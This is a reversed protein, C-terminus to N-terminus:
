KKLKLLVNLIKSNSKEINFYPTQEAGFYQNRKAVGEIMSGEFDYNKTKNKLFQIVKWIMFISTDNSGNIIKRATILNYGFNEDWVFFVASLLQNNKDRIAIIKGQERKTSAQYISSFLQKSYIIKHDNETLTNKHFDYFEEPLLNDDVTFEKECKRIKQKYKPHINEFIKDTDVIHNLLYTYRTTQKFGRDYFPQWNTFSHHFNQSFYSTNLAELQDILSHMVKKELSYREHLKQNKPYDIWVGNYQTQQPQIIIKFRWKKLLHYPLVGIIKENEEYLFVDWKKNESMCVADLWWAQLFLPVESHQICFQEYKQKNTM